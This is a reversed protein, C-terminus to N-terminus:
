TPQDLSFMRWKPLCFPNQRCEESCSLHFFTYFGQWEPYYQIGESRNALDKVSKEMGPWVIKLLEFKRLLPLCTRLYNFSLHLFVTIKAQNLAVKNSVLYIAHLITLFCDSFIFIRASQPGFIICGEPIYSYPMGGGGGGWKWMCDIAKSIALVAPNTMLFLCLFILKGHSWSPKQRNPTLIKQM